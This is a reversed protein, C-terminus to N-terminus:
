RVRPRDLWRGVRRARGGRPGVAPRVAAARGDDARRRRGRAPRPGAPGPRGHRRRGRRARGGRDLSTVPPAGTLWVDVDPPLPTRDGTPAADVVACGAASLSAVLRARVVPRPDVVGIRVTAMEEGRAAVMTPM